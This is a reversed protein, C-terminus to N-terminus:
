TVMLPAGADIVTPAEPENVACAVSAFGFATAAPVGADIGTLACDASAVHATVGDPQCDDPEDNPTVPAAAPVQVAVTWASGDAIGPAVDSTPVSLM